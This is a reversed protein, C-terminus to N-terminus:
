FEVNVPMLFEAMVGRSPERHDAWPIFLSYPAAAKHLENWLQGRLQLRHALGLLWQGLPDPLIAM